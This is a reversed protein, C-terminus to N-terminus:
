IRSGSSDAAALFELYAETAIALKHHGRFSKSACGNAFTSGKTPVPVFWTPDFINLNYTFIKAQYGRRLAHCALLM